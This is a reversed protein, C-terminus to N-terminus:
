ETNAYIITYELMRRYNRADPDYPFDMKDSRFCTLLVTSDADPLTGRFGHLKANIAKALTLVGAGTPAFADIQVMAHAFGTYGNLHNEPKDFIFRYTYAYDNDGIYNKPLEDLFGGVAIPPSGLGSQILAVLGGELM